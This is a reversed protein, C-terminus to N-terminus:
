GDMDEALVRVNRDKLDRIVDNLNNVKAIKVHSAAGCSVKIVTDTVGCCRRRPIIIGDAGACEASRIIAGLNHPDEIGDLLLLMLDDKTFLEEYDCYSYDTATGIFGRHNEGASLKDLVRRDVYQVPIKKERCLDAIPKANLNPADKLILVKEVTVVSRLAEYVANKGILLM